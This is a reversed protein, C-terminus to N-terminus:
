VENVSRRGVEAYECREIRWIKDVNNKRPYLPIMNLFLTGRRLLDDAEM